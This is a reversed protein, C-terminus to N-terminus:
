IQYIVHECEDLENLRYSLYKALKASVHDTSDESHIVELITTMKFISQVIRNRM